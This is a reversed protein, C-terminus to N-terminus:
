ATGSRIDGQQNMAQYSYATIAVMALLGPVLLSWDDAWARFTGGVSPLMQSSVAVFGVVLLTAGQLTTLVVQMTRPCLLAFLAGLGGCVLLATPVPWGKFGFQILLYAGLLGWTAGCALATAGPRWSVAVLGGVLAGTVATMDVPLGAADGALLGALAGLAALSVSLLLSFMRFGFFGFVLGTGFLVLGTAAPQAAAWRFLSDQVDLM